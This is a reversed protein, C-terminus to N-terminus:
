KDPSLRPSTLPPCVPGPHQRSRTKHQFKYSSLLTAGSGCGRSRGRAPRVRRVPPTLYSSFIIFWRPLLRKSRSTSQFWSPTLIFLASYISLTQIICHTNVYVIPLYTPVRLRLRGLGDVNRTYTIFRM